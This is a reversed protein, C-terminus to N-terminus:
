WSGGAPRIGRKPPPAETGALPREAAAAGINPLTM